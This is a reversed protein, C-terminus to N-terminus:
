KDHDLTSRLWNVGDWIRTGNIAVIDQIFWRTDRLTNSLQFNMTIQNLSLTNDCDTKNAFVLLAPKSYYDGNNWGDDNNKNVVYSSKYNTKLFDTIIKKSDLSEKLYEKIMSIIDNPIIDININIEKKCWNNLIFYLSEMHEFHLYIPAQSSDFCIVIADLKNEKYKARLEQTWNNYENGDLEDVKLHMKRYYINLSTRIYPQYKKTSVDLRKSTKTKPDLLASLITSKGSGPLGILAVYKINKPTNDSAKNGM